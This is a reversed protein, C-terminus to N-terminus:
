KIQSYRMFLRKFNDSIINEPVSSRSIFIRFALLFSKVSLDPTIYVVRTCCYIIILCNGKVTKETYDWNRFHRIYVM